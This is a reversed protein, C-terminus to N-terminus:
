EVSSKQWHSSGTQGPGSAVTVVLETLQSGQSLQEDALLQHLLYHSFEEVTTNRIPLVITDTKLFTMTDTHFCVRYASDQEDIVLYPSEGPLLVYEDLAQCCRKLAEKYHRYNSTMGNDDVWATIEASVTFNHGHLRERETASFVTFHAASFKLYEKAIQITAIRPSSAPM